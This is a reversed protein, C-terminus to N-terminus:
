PRVHPHRAKWDAVARDWVGRDRTVTFCSPLAAPYSGSGLWVMINNSCSAITGPIGMNRGSGMSSQEAMFINNHLALKPSLDHWKFFPGHGRVSSGYGDPGPM